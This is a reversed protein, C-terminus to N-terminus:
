GRHRHEVEPAPAPGVASMEMARSVTAAPRCNLYRRHSRAIAQEARARFQYSQRAHVHAARARARRAHGQLWAALVHQDHIHGLADQLGKLLRPADTARGALENHLELLYRLRRVSRRVSHLAAMDAATGLTALRALLRRQRARALVACSATATTQDAAGRTLLETTDSRLRRIDADLLAQALHTHSRRRAAQMHRRVLKPGRATDVALYADLLGAAVDLDRAAGSVRTLACLTERCRAQRKGGPRLALVPLAVRLRRGAIRLEHIAEADGAVAGPLQAFLATVRRRLLSTALANSSPAASTM